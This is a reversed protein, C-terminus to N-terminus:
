VAARSEYTKRILQGKMEFRPLTGPSVLEVSAPITLTAKIKKEIANRLEILDHSAAAYEAVVKMPPAVKPGPQDLVIQMEGTTRPHFSSVVDRVASPFVNVGLVILMDDTRG